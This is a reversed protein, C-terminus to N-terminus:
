KRVSWRSTIALRGRKRPRLLPDRFLRRKRRSAVGEWTSPLAWGGGYTKAAFWYHPQNEPTPADPRNPTSM